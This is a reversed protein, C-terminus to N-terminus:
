WLGPLRLSCPGNGWVKQGVKFIARYGHLSKWVADVPFIKVFLVRWRKGGIPNFCKGDWAGAFVRHDVTLAAMSVVAVRLTKKM